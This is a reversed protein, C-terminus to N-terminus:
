ETEVKLAATAHTHGVAGSKAAADAADHQDFCQMEVKGDKNIVAVTASMYDDTMRAGVAGSRHFRQTPVKRAVRLNRDRNAKIEDLKSYEEATAARMQGTVADRVVVQQQSATATDAAATEQALAQAPLAAAGMLALCLGAANLSKKSM